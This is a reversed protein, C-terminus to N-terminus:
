DCRFLKQLLGLIATEFSPRWKKFYRLQSVYFSHKQAEVSRVSGGGRHLFRIFPYVAVWAGRDKARRALDVDEFYLFFDRDFGSLERFFDRRIALAAGSVWDTSQIVKAEWSNKQSFPFFNNVVLEMLSPFPGSSWRERTGGSRELAMGFIARPRFEFARMLGRFNGSLLVTDPNIFFLLEGVARNSGMQNARGFGVNESTHVIKLGPFSGSLSDIKQREAGDNNVVIYEVDLTTDKFHAALSFLLHELSEASRFNVSIFSIDM